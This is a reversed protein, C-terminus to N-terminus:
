SVSLCLISSQAACREVILAGVRRIGGEVWKPPSDVTWKIDALVTCHPRVYNLTNKCGRITRFFAVNPSQM